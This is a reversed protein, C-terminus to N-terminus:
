RGKASRRRLRRRLDALKEGRVLGRRGATDIAQRLLDTRVGSEIGDLIARRPTVIPIGEYYTIDRPDLDRKHVTYLAPVERGFRYGAPVTIHIQGPNIDCLDHLDLATDHCLVARRGRTLWMTARTLQELDNHPAVLPIRYVGREVREATGRREMDVLRLPNIGAKRADATTVLGNQDAAIDAIETFVRGPMNQAGVIANQWTKHQLLM